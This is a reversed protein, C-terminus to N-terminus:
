GDHTPFFRRIVRGPPQGAFDPDRRDQVVFAVTGMQHSRNVVDSLAPPGFGRQSFTLLTEPIHGVCRWYHKPNGAWVLEASKEVPSPQCKGATGHLLCDAVPPGLLHVRIVPVTAVCAVRRREIRMASEM